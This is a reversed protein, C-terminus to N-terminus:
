AAGEGTSTFVTQATKCTNGADQSVQRPTEHSHPADLPRSDSSPSWAAARIELRVGKAAGVEIRYREETVIAHRDHLLVGCDVLGDIAAKLTPTSAGVDRVRNDTVEWVFTVEVPVLIPFLGFATGTLNTDRILQRGAWAGAERIQKVKRARDWRNIRANSRLPPSEYPLRVTLATM